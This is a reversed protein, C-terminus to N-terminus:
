KLSNGDAFKWTNIKFKNGNSLIAFNLCGRLLRTSVVNVFMKSNLNNHAQPSRCLACSYLQSHTHYLNYYLDFNFNFPCLHFIISKRRLDTKKVMNTLKNTVAIVYNNWSLIYYVRHAHCWGCLKSFKTQLIQQM